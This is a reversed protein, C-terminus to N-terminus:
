GGVTGWRGDGRAPQRFARGRTRGVQGDQRNALSGAGLKEKTQETVPDFVPPLYRPLREIATSTHLSPIIIFEDQLSNNADVQFSSTVEVRTKSPGSSKPAWSQSPMGCGSRPLAFQAFLAFLVFM